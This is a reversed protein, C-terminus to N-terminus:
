RYKRLLDDIRSEIARIKHANAPTEEITDLKKLIAKLRPIGGSHKFATRKAKHTKRTKRKAAM